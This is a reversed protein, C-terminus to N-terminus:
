PSDHFPIKKEPLPCFLLYALSVRSHFLPRESLSQICSLFCYLFLIVVPIEKWLLSLSPWTCLPPFPPLLFISDSCICFFIYIFLYFNWVCVLGKNWHDTHSIDLLNLRLLLSSHAGDCLIVCLSLPIHSTLANNVGPENPANEKKERNTELANEGKTWIM